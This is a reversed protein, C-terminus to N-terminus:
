LVLGDFDERAWSAVDSAMSVVDVANDPSRLALPEDRIVHGAWPAESVRTARPRPIRAFAAADTVPAVPADAVPAEAADTTSAPGAPALAALAPESSEQASEAAPRDSAVEPAVEPAAEPSEAPVPEPQEGGEDGLVLPSVGIEAALAQFKTKLQMKAEAARPSLVGGGRPPPRPPPPGQRAIAAPKSGDRERQVESRALGLTTAVDDDSVPTQLRRTVPEVADLLASREDAIGQRLAAVFAGKLEYLATMGEATQAPATSQAAGRAAVAALPKEGEAYWLGPHKRQLVSLKSAWRRAETNSSLDYRQSLPM